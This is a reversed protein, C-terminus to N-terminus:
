GCCKFAIESIESQGESIVIFIVVKVQNALYRTQVGLPAIIDLLVNTPRMQGKQQDLRVTIVQIALDQLM